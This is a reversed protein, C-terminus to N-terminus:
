GESFFIVTRPSLLRRARHAAMSHGLSSGGCGAFRSTVTPADEAKPKLPDQWGPELFPAYDETKSLHTWM